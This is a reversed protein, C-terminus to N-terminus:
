EKGDQMGSVTFPIYANIVAGNTL